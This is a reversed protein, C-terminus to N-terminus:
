IEAEFQPLAEILKMILAQRMDEDVVKKFSGDLQKKTIMCLRDIEGSYHEIVKEVAWTEGAVAARITQLDLSINEKELHFSRNSIIISKVMGQLLNGCFAANDARVERKRPKVPIQAAGM